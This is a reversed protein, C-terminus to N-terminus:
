SFFWFDLYFGVNTDGNRYSLHVTTNLTYLPRQQTPMPSYFVVSRPYFASLFFM